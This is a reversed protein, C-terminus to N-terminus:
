LIICTKSKNREPDSVDEKGDDKTVVEDSQKVSGWAESAARANNRSKPTCDDDLTHTDLGDGTRRAAGMNGTRRARMRSAFMMAKLKRRAQNYTKLESQIRLDTSGAINPKLSCSKIWPHELVQTATLRKKPDTQLLQTVFKKAAPTIHNWYPSPFSYSGSKIKKFLRANSQEYFPPFGCLLVYAIIGVSWMDVSSGYAERRLVEPAVYGPTGCATAVVKSGFKILKSLGFDAIKLASRAGSTKYLLNEPKLDRHVIGHQHTEHLIVCVDRVVQKSDNETFKTQKAIREFLEGGEMLEMIIYFLDDGEFAERMQVIGDVSTLKRLIKVELHFAAIDENSMGHKDMIKIAWVSGDKKDTGLRV